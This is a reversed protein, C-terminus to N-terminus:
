NQRINSSNLNSRINNNNNFSSIWPSPNEFMNGFISKIPVPEDQEENFSRPIYRYEIVNKPCKYYMKTVDIIIFILAIIFIILILTRINMVKKFGVLNYGVM